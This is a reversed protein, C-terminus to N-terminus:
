RESRASGDSIADAHRDPGPLAVDQRWKQHFRENQAHQSPQEPDPQAHAAGSEYRLDGAPGREDRRVGDDQRNKERHEDADEESEIGGPFCGEEMGDVGQSILLEITM